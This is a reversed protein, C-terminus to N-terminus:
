LSFIKINKNFKLNSTFKSKVDFFFGKSKLKKSLNYILRKTFEKHTVAIIIGDIKFNLKKIDFLKLNYERKVEETNAVPDCVYCDMKKQKLKRYIEFSKSNRIDDCNEKFTIGLLLIKKNKLNEKKFNSIIESVVYNPMFNNVRRAANIIDPIYGEKKSKYVLYYPDVGICHGGVLGPLYKNFNWKTSAAKIVDTTKIKLKNFIISVENMLAINTDRQINELIKAAEAVKICDAEYVGAQIIKEYFKKIKKLTKKNDASIIKKIKTLTRNKDGPSIREPSYGVNFDRMWKLNSYKEIIPICVDETVGPYVTSEFIIITKSKLNKGIEVCATKLQSLNPKNKKNIPTPVCVIVIDSYSISNLNLSFQVKSEIKKFKSRLNKLKNSSKDIGITLFNKKTIEKLLPLGVYGLGIISVTQKKM